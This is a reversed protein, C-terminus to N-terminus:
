HGGVQGFVSGRARGVLLSSAQISQSENMGVMAAVDNVVQETLKLVGAIIHSKECKSRQNM